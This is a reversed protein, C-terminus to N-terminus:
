GYRFNGELAIEGTEDMVKYSAEKPYTKRKKSLPLSSSQMPRSTCLLRNVEEGAVGTLHLRLYVDVEEQSPKGRAKIQARPLFPEGLAIATGPSRLAFLKGTAQGSAGLVWLNGGDDRRTALYSVVRYDGRPLRTHRGPRPLMVLAGQRDALTLKTMELPLEVTCAEGQWPALVLERPLRSWDVRYIRGALVLHDGRRMGDQYTFNEKGGIYVLDARTRPKPFGDALPPQGGYLGDGDNDGILLRYEEGDMEFSGALASSTYLYVRMLAAIRAPDKVETGRRSSYYASLNFPVELDTEGQRLNLTFSFRHYFGRSRRSAQAAVPKEEALDGDGDRDPYLLDYPRDEQAQSALLFLREAGGLRATFFVPNEGKTAPLQWDGPPVQRHKRGRNFGGPIFTRRSRTSPSGTERRLQTLPIRISSEPPPQGPLALTALALLTLSM